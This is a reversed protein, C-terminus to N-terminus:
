EREDPYELNRYKYVKMGSKIDNISGAVLECKAIDQTLFVPRLIIIGKDSFLCLKKWPYVRETLYNGGVIVETDSVSKVIGTFLGSRELYEAQVQVALPNKIYGRKCDKDVLALGESFSFTNDFQPEIIFEGKKNIYGHKDNIEVCALGESFNGAYDFRPEIVIKGERNIFGYKIIDSNAYKKGFIISYSSAPKEKKWVCALGESFPEARDFQLKIITKGEKNIFECKDNIKVCALGESFNGAYDFRPEIVIKGEKNIYGYKGNKKIVALGEFFSYAKEFQPKIVFRGERNIYGWEDYMKIRALGECFSGAEEFEIDIVIRGEKNIFGSKIEALGESFSGASFKTKIVIRGHTNMFCTNQKNDEFGLLGDSFDSGGEAGNYMPKIVMKGERNIYGHKGRGTTVWALGESFDGGLVYQPKVLWIINDGAPTRANGNQIFTCATILILNIIKKRNL